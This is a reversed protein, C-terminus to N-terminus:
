KPFSDERPDKFAGHFNAKYEGDPDSKRYYLQKFCLVEDGTMDPYYCWRQDDDQKVHLLPLPKGFPSGGGHLSTPVLNEKKVTSCDLCALPNNILTGEM